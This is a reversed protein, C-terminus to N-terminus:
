NTKCAINASARWAVSSPSIEIRLLLANKKLPDANGSSSTHAGKPYALVPPVSSLAFVAM